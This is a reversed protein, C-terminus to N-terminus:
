EKESADKIIEEVKDVMKKSGVIFPVRQHLSQPKIDLIRQTGTSAKGGAQEALFSHSQM